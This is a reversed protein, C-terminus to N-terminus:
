GGRLRLAGSEQGHESMGVSVTPPRFASSEQGHESMGVDGGVLPPTHLSTM